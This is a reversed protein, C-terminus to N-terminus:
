LVISKTKLNVERKGMLSDCPLYDFYLSQSVTALALGPLVKCSGPSRGLALPSPQKEFYLRHVM